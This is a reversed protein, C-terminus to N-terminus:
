CVMVMRTMCRSYKMSERAYNKRRLYENLSHNHATHFNHLKLEQLKCIMLIELAWIEMLTRTTFSGSSANNVCISTLKKMRQGGANSEQTHELNKKVVRAGTESYKLEMAVGNETARKFQQFIRLTNSNVKM